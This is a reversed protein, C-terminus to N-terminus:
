AFVLWLSEAETGATAPGSTGGPSVDDKEITEAIEHRDGVTDVCGEPGTQDDFASTKNQIVAQWVETQVGVVYIEKSGSVRWVM